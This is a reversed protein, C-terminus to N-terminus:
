EDKVSAIDMIRQTYEEAFQRTNKRESASTVADVDTQVKWDDRQTTHLLIKGKTEPSSSSIWDTIWPRVKSNVGSNTIFIVSHGSPDIKDMNKKSHEFTAVAFGQNELITKMEEILGTKFRTKEYVLLVTQSGSAHIGMCFFVAICLLIFLKKM